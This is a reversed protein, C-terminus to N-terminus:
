AIIQVVSTTPRRQSDHGCSWCVEFTSPNSEGCESCKYDTGADTNRITREQERILRRAFGADDHDILWVSAQMFPGLGSGHIDDYFVESEVGKQLLLHHVIYAEVVHQAQYIRVM